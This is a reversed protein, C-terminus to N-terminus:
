YEPPLNRPRFTNCNVNCSTRANAKSRYRGIQNAGQDLGSDSPYDGTAQDFWERLDSLVCACAEGGNGCRTANCNAKCHFYRDSHKWNAQRMERYTDSFINVACFCGPPPLIMPTLLELGLPDIFFTPRADVYAFLNPSALLGLYDTSTYRGTQPEYWRHTNCGASTDQSATGM